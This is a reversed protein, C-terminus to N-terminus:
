LLRRVLTSIKKAVALKSYHMLVVKIAGSASATRSSEFDSFLIEGETYFLKPIEVLSLGEM